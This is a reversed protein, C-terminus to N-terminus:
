GKSQYCVNYYTIYVLHFDMAFPMAFTRSLKNTPFCPLVYLFAYSIFGLGRARWDSVNCRSVSADSRISQRSNVTEVYHSLVYVFVAVNEPWVKEDIGNITQLIKVNM